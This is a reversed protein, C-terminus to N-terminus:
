DGLITETTVRVRVTEELAVLFDFVGCCVIKFRMIEPCWVAKYHTTTELEATRRPFGLELLRATTRPLSAAAREEDGISQLVACVALLSPSQLSRRDASGRDLAVELHAVDPPRAAPPEVSGPLLVLSLPVLAAPVVRSPM